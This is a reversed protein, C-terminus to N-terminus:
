NIKSETRARKRAGKRIRKVKKRVPRSTAAGFVAVAMAATSMVNAYTLRNSM